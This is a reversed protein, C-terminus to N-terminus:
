AESEGPVGKVTALQWAAFVGTNPLDLDGTVSETAELCKQVTTEDPVISILTLHGEEVISQNFYAYRMPLKLRNIRNIGTSELITAGRIGAAQWADLVEMLQDPDDLVFLIMYM